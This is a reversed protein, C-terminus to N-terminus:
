LDALAANVEDPRIVTCSYKGHPVVLKLQDVIRNRMSNDVVIFDAFPLIMPIMVIDFYDSSSIEENRTMLDSILWSHIDVYPITKYYDSRFFDLMLDVNENGSYKKWRKLYHYLLNQKKRNDTGKYVLKLALAMGNLEQERREEITQGLRRAEKRIRIWDLSIDSSLSKFARSTGWQQGRLINIRDLFPRLYLLLADFLDDFNYPIEQNENLYAKMAIGTQRSLFTSHDVAFYKGVVERYISMRRKAAYNPIIKGSSFREQMEALQGTDVVIIRDELSLKALKQWVSNKSGWIYGTDLWIVKTKNNLIKVKM